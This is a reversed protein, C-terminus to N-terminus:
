RSVRPMELDPARQGGQPPALRGAPGAIGVMGLPHALAPRAVAAAVAAYDVELPAASGILILDGPWGMWVALITM